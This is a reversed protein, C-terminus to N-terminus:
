TLRTHVEITIVGYGLFGSPTRGCTMESATVFVSLVADIEDSVDNDAVADEVDALIAELATVTDDENQYGSVRALLRVTFRDDRLLRASGRMAPIEVVSSVEDVWLMRATANQEGPWFRHVSVDASTETAVQDVMSKVVAWRVSRTAM